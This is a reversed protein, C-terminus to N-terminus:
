AGFLNSWFSGGSTTEQETETTTLEDGGFRNSYSNTEEETTEEDSIDSSSLIGEYEKVENFSNVKDTMEFVESQEIEDAESNSFEVPNSEIYAEVKELDINFYDCFDELWDSAITLFSSQMGQGDPKADNNTASQNGENNPQGPINLSSSGQEKTTEETESKSADESAQDNTNENPQNNNFNEAPGGSTPGTVISTGQYGQLVDDIYVNYEDGVEFQDTSIVVGQYKRNASKLLDNSDPDFEFVTKGDTDTIKIAANKNQMEAFKLNMTVQDSNSEAWDMTSGLAVVTGGNIYSGNDSDIGSDSSPNASALVNGGNIAVWGNSDIGDGAEGLGGIAVVNGDNITICSVGDVNANMADDEAEINIYGGNVTLHMETSIGENEGTVNLISDDNTEGTINLSELSYIAGDQDYLTEPEESSTDEYVTAVYSGEINNESDEAIVINAGANETDVGTFTAELGSSAEKSAESTETEKGQSGGFIDSSSKTEDSTEKETSGEAGPINLTVQETEEESNAFNLNTEDEESEAGPINLTGEDTTEEVPRDLDDTTESVDVTGCEYVNEFLIAPAVTCKINANDLILTVKANEDTKADEGLNVRIQGNFTGTLRYTGAETINIVPNSIAEDETHKDEDSGAGYTNGSDYTDRDEYYEIDYSLYVAQEDLGMPAGDVTPNLDDLNIVVEDSLTTLDDDDDFISSTQEEKTTTQQESTTEETTQPATTTEEVSSTPEETSEETGIEEVGGFIQKWISEATSSDSSSSEDSDSYDSGGLIADALQEAAEQDVLSAGGDSATNQTTSCACLSVAAAGAVATVLIKKIM